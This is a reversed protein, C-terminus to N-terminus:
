DFLGPAPPASSAEPPPEPEPYALEPFGTLITNHESNGEFTYTKGEETMVELTMPETPGYAYLAFGLGPYRARLDDLTM